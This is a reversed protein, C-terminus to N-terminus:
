DTIVIDASQLLQQRQDANIHTFPLATTVPLPSKDHDNQDYYVYIGTIDFLPLNEISEKLSRVGEVPVNDACLHLIAKQEFLVQVPLGFSALVLLMDLTEAPRVSQSPAQRFVFLLTKM